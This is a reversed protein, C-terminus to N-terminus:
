QGRYPMTRDCGHGYGICGYFQNGSNKATRLVMPRGCEPCAPLNGRSQAVDRARELARLVIDNATSGKGGARNVRKEIGLGKEWGEADQWYLCCRIADEGVARAGTHKAGVSTLVKVCLKGANNERIVCLYYAETTEPRILEFAKKGPIKKHEIAGFVKEFDALTPQIYQAAM